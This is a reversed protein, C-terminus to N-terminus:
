HLMLGTRIHRKAFDRAADMFGGAIFRPADRCGWFVPLRAPLSLFHFHEESMELADQIQIAQSQATWVTSMILEQHCCGGLIQSYIGATGEQPEFASIGASAAGTMLM